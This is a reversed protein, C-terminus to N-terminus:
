IKEMLPYGIQSSLMLVFRATSQWRLNSCFSSERKLVLKKTCNIIMITHENLPTSGMRLMGPFILFKLPMLKNIGGWDSWLQGGGDVRDYNRQWILLILTAWNTGDWIMYSDSQCIWTILTAGGAGMGFWFLTAMCYWCYWLQGVLDVLYYNNQSILLFLTARGAGTGFNILTAGGSECSWFQGALDM